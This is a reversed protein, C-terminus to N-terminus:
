PCAPATITSSFLAQGLSNEATASISAGTCPVDAKAFRAEVAYTDDPYDAFSDSHEHAAGVSIVGVVGAPIKTKLNKTQLVCVLDGDWHCAFVLPLKKAARCKAQVIASGKWLEQDGDKITGTVTFDKCAKFDHGLRWPEFLYEVGDGDDQPVFRDVSRSADGLTLSAAASPAPEGQDIVISCTVDKTLARRAQIPVKDKGHFCAVHAGVPTPDAAVPSSLLLLALLCRRM